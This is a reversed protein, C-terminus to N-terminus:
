QAPSPTQDSLSINARNYTFSAVTGHIWVVRKPSISYKKDLFDATLEEEVHRKGIGRIVVAKNLSLASSVLDEIIGPPIDANSLHTVYKSRPTSEPCEALYQIIPIDVAECLNKEKDDYVAPLITTHGDKWTIVPSNLPVETGLLSGSLDYNHRETM